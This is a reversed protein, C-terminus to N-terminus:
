RSAIAPAIGRYAAHADDWDAGRSAQEGFAARVFGRALRDFPDAAIAARRRVVRRYEGATMAPDFPVREAEDLLLLSARYLLAIAQAYRGRAAADQADALCAASTQGAPLADGLSPAAKPAFSVRRAIRFLVVGIAIAAIAIIAAAFITGVIPKGFTAGALSGLLAQMVRLIWAIIRGLLTPKPPPAPTTTAARYDPGALIRAAEARPDSQPLANATAGAELALYRLTSSLSLLDSRRRKLNKERAAARLGSQLWDDISPSFRPTTGLPAPPVHLALPLTGDYAAAGLRVAVSALAARYADLSAAAPAHCLALSAGIAAAIRLPRGCPRGTVQARTAANTM